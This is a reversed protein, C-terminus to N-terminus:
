LQNRVGLSFPTLIGDVEPENPVDRPYWPSEGESLKAGVVALLLAGKRKTGPEPQNFRSMDAQRSYIPCGYKLSVHDIASAYDRLVLEVDASSQPEYFL